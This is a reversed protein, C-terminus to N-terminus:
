CVQPVVFCMMKGNNNMFWILQDLECSDQKGGAAGLQAGFAIHHDCNPSYGVKCSEHESYLAADVMKISVVNEPALPQQM